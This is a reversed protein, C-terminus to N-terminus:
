VRKLDKAIVPPVALGLPSITWRTKSKAGPPRGRRPRGILLSKAKQLRDIEVNIEAVLAKTDM